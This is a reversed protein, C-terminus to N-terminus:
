PPGTCLNLGGDIPLTIGTIYQARISSLFVVGNAIDEPQGLRRLPTAAAYHEAHGAGMASQLMPTITNGPGVSNVRIGEPGYDLADVKTIGLAGAKSATYAGLGPMAITACVSTVNVISGRSQFGDLPEQKLM